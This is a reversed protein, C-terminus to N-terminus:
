VAYFSLMRSGMTRCTKKIPRLLVIIATLIFIHLNAYTIVQSIIAWVGIKIESLVERSKKRDGRIFDSLLKILKWLVISLANRM